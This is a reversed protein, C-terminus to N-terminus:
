VVCGDEPLIVGLESALTEVRQMFEAFELVKLDASSPPVQVTENGIEVFRPPLFKAKCIEHIEEPTHGTEKAMETYLWWLRANQETSRKRRAQKVRIDWGRSPDLWRILDAARQLQTTGKALIVRM